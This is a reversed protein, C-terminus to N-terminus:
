ERYKCSANLASVQWTNGYVYLPCKECMGLRQLHKSERHAFTLATERFLGAFGPRLGPSSRSRLQDKLARVAPAGLVHRPRPYNRLSKEEVVRSGLTAVHELGRQTVEPDQARGRHLFPHPPSTAPLMASAM